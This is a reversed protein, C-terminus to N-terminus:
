VVLFCTESVIDRDTKLHALCSSQQIGCFSSVEILPYCVRGSDCILFNQSNRIHDLPLIHCNQSIRSYGSFLVM